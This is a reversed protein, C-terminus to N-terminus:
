LPRQSGRVMALTFMGNKYLEPSKEKLLKVLKDSHSRGNIVIRSLKALTPHQLMRQIATWDLKEFPETPGLDRNLQAELILTELAPSALSFLIAHTCATVYQAEDHKDYTHIVIRLMSLKTCRELSPYKQATIRQNDSSVDDGQYAQIGLHLHQLQLPGFKDLIPQAQGLVYFCCQLRITQLLEPNPHRLMWNATHRLQQWSIWEVGLKRMRPHPAPVPAGWPRDPITFPIIRGIRSLTFTDLQPFSKWMADLPGVGMRWCNMILRKLAPLHPGLDYDYGLQDDAPYDSELMYGTLILEETKELVPLWTLPGMNPSGPADDEWPAVIWLTRVMNRLDASAALAEGLKTYDDYRLRVKLITFRHFRATHTWEKSVLACAALAANNDHLHDIVNEVLEPPLKPSSSLEDSAQTTVALPTSTAGPPSSSAPM